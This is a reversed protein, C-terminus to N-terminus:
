VLVIVLLILAPILLALLAPRSWTSTLPQLWGAIRLDATGDAAARHGVPRTPRAPSAGAIAVTGEAWVAEARAATAHESLM